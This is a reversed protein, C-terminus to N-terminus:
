NKKISYKRRRKTKTNFEFILDESEFFTFRVFVRITTKDASLTIKEVSSYDEYTWIIHENEGEVFKITSDIYNIYGMQPQGPILYLKDPYSSSQSGIVTGTWTNVEQQDIREAPDYFFKRVDHNVILLMLSLLGLLSVGLGVSKRKQM